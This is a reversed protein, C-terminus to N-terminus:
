EIGRRKITKQVEKNVLDRISGVKYDIAEIAEQIEKIFDKAQGATLFFACGSEDGCENYFFKIGVERKEGLILSQCLVTFDDTKIM